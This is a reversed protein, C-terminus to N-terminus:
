VILDQYKKLIIEDKFEKKIDVLFMEPNESAMFMLKALQNINNVECLNSSPLIESPGSLCNTSIVPTKLAMAELIVMGLGEFESSLVLYKAKAIFPYPNKQYDLFLVKDALNLSDVLREIKEKLDGQGILVLKEKIRSKSYARVLVDYRKQEKFKGVHIIYSDEPTPIEEQSKEFVYNDNVPNYIQYVNDNNFWQEFDEKVGKSVAIAPKRTYIIQLQRLKKNDIKNKENENKFFDYSPVNHIVLYVNKLKSLSLIRDSPLLNSLVLDPEGHNKKIFYDLLPAVINARFSRPIFRMQYRFHQYKIPKRANLEIHDKFVIFNVDFYEDDFLDALNLMVREAGNGKLDPIVIIIKYKRHL